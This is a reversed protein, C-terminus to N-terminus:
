TIRLISKGHTDGDALRQIATGLDAMEYEATIDIRAQGSALISGEGVGEGGALVGCQAVEQFARGGDQDRLGAV